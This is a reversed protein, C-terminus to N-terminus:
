WQLDSKVAANICLHHHLIFNKQVQPCISWAGWFCEALACWVCAHQLQGILSLLEDDKVEQGPPLRLEMAVTDLIIGLIEPFKRSRESKWGGSTSGTGQVFPTSVNTCQRRSAQGVALAMLKTLWWCPPSSWWWAPIYPPQHVLSVITWQGWIAWTYTCEQWYCTRWSNDGIYVTCPCMLFAM